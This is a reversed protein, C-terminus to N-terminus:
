DPPSFESWVIVTVVRRECGTLQHQCSAPPHPPPPTSPSFLCTCTNFTVPLSPRWSPLLHLCDSLFNFSFYSFHIFSTFPLLSTSYPFFFTTLFQFISLFVYFLFSFFSSYSYYSSLHFYCVPTLFSSHLFPFLLPNFFPQQTPTPPYFPSSLSPPLTASFHHPTSVALCWTM